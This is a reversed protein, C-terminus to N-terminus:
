AKAVVIGQGAHVAKNESDIIAVIVDMGTTASIDSSGNWSTWASGTLITGQAPIVLGYGTQYVYSQNAGKTVSPTLATTGSTSGAVSAVTMRYDGSEASGEEIYIAFPPEDGTAVSYHATFTFAFQGKARDTSKLSFGGTSLSNKMQIAVFGGNNAGNKDSYDGIWWLTEFASQDLDSAPIIHTEDLSDIAAAGLLRKANTPDLSLMTGTLTVAWETLRKFEKTNKQANDIDAGFDEFTPVASFTHGGTTAGIIGSVAGTGPTFSTAIIGAGLQLTEAVDSPLRNFRM